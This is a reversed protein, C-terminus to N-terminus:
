YVDMTCVHIALVTTLHLKYLAEFLYDGPMGNLVTNLLDDIVKNGTTNIHSYLDRGASVLTIGFFGLM